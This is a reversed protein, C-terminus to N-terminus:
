GKRAGSATKMSCRMLWDIETFRADVGGSAPPRTAQVPV